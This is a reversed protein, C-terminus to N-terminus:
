HSRRRRGLDDNTVPRAARQPRGALVLLLGVALAGFGITLESATRNGTNAVGGTDPIPPTDVPIPTPTSTSTVPPSSGGGAGGAAVREIVVDDANTTATPYVTTGFYNDCEANVVYVGDIPLDIPISVFWRGNAKPKATFVEGPKRDLTVIVSAPANEPLCQTGSVDLFAKRSPPDDSENIWLYLQVHLPPGVRPEANASHMPVLASLLALGALTILRRM